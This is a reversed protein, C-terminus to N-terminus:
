RTTSWGALVLFAASGAWATYALEKVCSMGAFVGTGRYIQSGLIALAVAVVILVLGTAGCRHLLRTGCCAQDGSIRCM